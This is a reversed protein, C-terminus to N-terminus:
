TKKVKTGAKATFFRVKILVSQYRHDRRLYYYVPLMVVLQIEM